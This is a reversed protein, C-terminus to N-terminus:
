SRIMRPNPRAAQDSLKQLTPTYELVIQPNFPNPHAAHLVPAQSVLNLPAQLNMLVMGPTAPILVPEIALGTAGEVKTWADEEACL